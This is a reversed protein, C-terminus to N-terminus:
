FIPDGTPLHPSTLEILRLLNKLFEDAYTIEAPHSKDVGMQLYFGYSENVFFYQTVIQDWREWQKQVIVIDGEKGGRFKRERILRFHDWFFPNVRWNAYDELAIERDFVDMFLFLVREPRYIHRFTYVSDNEGEEQDWLYYNPIPFKLGAEQEYLCTELRPQSFSLDEGVLSSSVLCLSFFFLKGRM